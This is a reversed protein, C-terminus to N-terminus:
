TFLWPVQFPQYVHPGSNTWLLLIDSARLIAVRSADWLGPLLLHLTERFVLCWPTTWSNRVWGLSPQSPPVQHQLSHFGLVWHNESRGQGWAEWLTKRILAIWPSVPQKGLFKRAPKQYLNAHSLQTFRDSPRLSGGQPVVPGRQLLVSLFGSFGRSEWSGASGLKAPTERGTPNGHINGRSCVSWNYVSDKAGWTCLLGEFTGLFLTPFCLSWQSLM